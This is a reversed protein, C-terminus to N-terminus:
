SKAGRGVLHGHRCGGGWGRSYSSLNHLKVKAWKGPLLNVSIGTAVNLSSHGVVRGEVRVM